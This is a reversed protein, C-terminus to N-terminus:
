FLLIGAASSLFFATSGDQVKVICGGIAFRGAAPRGCAFSFICVQRKLVYEYRDVM